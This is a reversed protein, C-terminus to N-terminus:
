PLTTNTNCDISYNEGIKKYNCGEPLSPLAVTPIPPKPSICTLVYGQTTTEYSCQSPLKPLEITISNIPIIHQAPTISPCVVKFNDGSQQYECGAPLSPLTSQPNSSAARSNTNTRQQSYLFSINVVLGIVLILLSTLVFFRSLFFSRKRSLNYYSSLPEPNPEM